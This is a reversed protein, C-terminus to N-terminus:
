LVRLLSGMSKFAPVCSGHRMRNLCLPSMIPSWGFRATAIDSINVQFPCRNSPSPPHIPWDLFWEGNRNVATSGGDIKGRGDHYRVFSNAINFSEFQNVPIEADVRVAKWNQTDLGNATWQIVKTGAPAGAGANDLMLGSRENMSTYYGNGKHTFKWRQTDWENNTWMIVNTGPTTAGNPNDLILSNNVNM